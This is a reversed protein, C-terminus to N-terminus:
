EDFAGSSPDLPRLGMAPRPTDGMMGENRLPDLACRRAPPPTDGCVRIVERKRVM